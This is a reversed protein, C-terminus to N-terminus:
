FKKNLNFFIPGVRPSSDPVELKGPTYSAHLGNCWTPGVIRNVFKTTTYQFCKESVYNLKNEVNTQKIDM